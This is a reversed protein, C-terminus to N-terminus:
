RGESTAATSALAVGSALRSALLGGGICLALSETVFQVIIDRGRAGVARRIGIERTRETVSVLMINMVGIAGVVLSIGAISGLLISLTQSVQGAAGLLDDQSKITFDPTTVLHRQDLFDSVEAVFRPTTRAPLKQINLQDIYPQREGSRDNQLRSLATTLPM